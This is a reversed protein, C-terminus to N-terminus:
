DILTQLLEPPLQCWSDQLATWLNTPTLPPPSRKQVAGQLSDKITSFLGKNKATGNYVKMKKAALDRTGKFRLLQTPCCESQQEYLEM